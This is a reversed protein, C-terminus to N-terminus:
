GNRSVLGVAVSTMREAAGPAFAAKMGYYRHADVVEYGGYPYEDVTPLYGPVGDAYGLVLVPKEAAAKVAEAVALFPEGPLTVVAVGGLDLRSVFGHWGDEDTSGQPDAPPLRAERREGPGQELMEDAWAMWARYLAALPPPSSSASQAWSERDRVTQVPDFPSLPLVVETRQFTVPRTTLTRFAAQHLTDALLTGIREAEAFTRRGSMDSRFSAEASHGTNVDGACGTAWLSVGGDREIADRVYSPYDGSIERNAGDLVVPHCPYTVLTAVAYAGRRFRLAEIPPDIPRDPHRRNKAVGSGTASAYDLACEVQSRCAGEVASVAVRVLEDHVSAAHPGLRGFALCPGSHTHTALVVVDQVLDATLHRIEAATREHLACVDASVLATDDLVLARVTLPDHVGTSAGERAAYGAM